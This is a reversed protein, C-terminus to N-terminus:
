VKKKKKADRAGAKKADAANVSDLPTADCAIDQVFVNDGTPM